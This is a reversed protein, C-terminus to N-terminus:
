RTGANSDRAALAKLEAITGADDWEKPGIWRKLEVGDAGILITTPLGTVMLGRMGASDPDVYIGLNRIGIEEYFPRVRQVGGLDISLAVVEFGNTSASAQLRDLSPMEKRCPTCWTAWVNLLIPKGGFDGFGRERGAQDTFTLSVPEAVGHDVMGSGLAWMGGIVTGALLAVAVGGIKMTYKVIGVDRAM